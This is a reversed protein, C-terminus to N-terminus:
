FRGRAGIGFSQTFCLRAIPLQGFWRTRKAPQFVQRNPISTPASLSGGTYCRWLNNNKRAIM